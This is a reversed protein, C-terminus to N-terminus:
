EGRDEPRVKWKRLFAELTESKESEGDGAANATLHVAIWEYDEHALFLRPHEVPGADVFHVGAPGVGRADTIAVVADASLPEQDLNTAIEDRVAEPLNSWWDAIDRKIERTM